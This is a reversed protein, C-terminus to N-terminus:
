QPPFCKAALEVRKEAVDIQQDDRDHIDGCRGQGVQGRRSARRRSNLRPKPEGRWEIHTPVGRQCQRAALGIVTQWDAKLNSSPRHLLRQDQAGPVRELPRGVPM